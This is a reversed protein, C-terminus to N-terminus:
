VKTSCSNRTKIAQRPEHNMEINTDDVYAPTGEGVYAQVTNFEFFEVADDYGWNNDRMLIEICKKYSYAIVPPRGFIRLVGIVAKDFGDATLAEPNEELIQDFIEELM